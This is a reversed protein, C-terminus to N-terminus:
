CVNLLTYKQDPIRQSRLKASSQKAGAMPHRATKTNFQKANPQKPGLAFVSLRVESGSASDTVADEVVHYNGPSGNIGALHEHFEDPV